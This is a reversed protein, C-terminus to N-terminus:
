GLRTSGDPAGAVTLAGEGAFRSTLRDGRMSYDGAALQIRDQHRIVRPLAMCAREMSRFPRERSGDGRFDRGGYAVHVTVPGASIRPQRWRWALAERARQGPRLDGDVEGLDKTIDGCPFDGWLSVAWWTCEDAYFLLAEALAEEVERARWREGRRQGELRALERALDESM